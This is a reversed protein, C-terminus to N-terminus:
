VHPHHHGHGGEFYGGEGLSQRRKAREALKEVSDVIEKVDVKKQVALCRCGLSGVIVGAVFAGALTLTSSNM